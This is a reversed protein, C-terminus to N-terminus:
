HTFLGLVIFVNYAIHLLIPAILSRRKEYLYCLTFSLLFILICFRNDFHVAAFFLSVFLAGLLPGIKNRVVPFIYGRYFIEETVPSILFVLWYKMYMVGGGALFEQWSIRNTIRTTPEALEYLYAIKVLACALALYVIYEGAKILDWTLGHTTCGLKGATSGYQFFAFYLTLVFLFLYQIIAWFTTVSELTTMEIDGKFFVTAAQFGTFILFVEIIGRTSWEVDFSRYDKKLLRSVLEVALVFLFFIGVKILLIELFSIILLGNQEFFTRLFTM